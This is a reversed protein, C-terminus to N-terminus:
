APFAVAEAMGLLEARDSDLLFGASIAAELSRRYAALYEARDGTCPSCPRVPRIPGDVRVLRVVQERRTPGRGSLTSIPVDVAPTRVGGLPTASNTAPSSPRLRRRSSCPPHRPRPWTTPSGGTSRWSRPRLWSISPVRTSSSTADWCAPSPGSWMPTPTPPAPWRGPASGTADPQRAPGYDLLPGLDTETEFILVPVDTDDRISCGKRSTRAPSPRGRCRPAAGVGVTSSSGTTSRRRRNCPM